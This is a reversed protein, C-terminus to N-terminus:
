AGLLDKRPDFAMEQSMKNYFDKQEDSVAPPLIVDLVVYFDGHALGKGKLRMKKGSQSHAPIKLKVKGHPTPVTIEEGLASEWPAVPVHCYIDSDVIKYQGNSVVDVELYLDGSEAGGVGAEGQGKLRIQQHNGIGKPIKVKLKKTKNVVQGHENLAQYGFHLEREVGALANNIDIQVKTHLDQGKMHFGQSRGHSSRGQQQKFFEGFIDEYNEFGHGSGGQQYFGGQQQGQNANSFGGQQAQQWHEGYQDYLKRKEADKLVDYADQVQKFKEEANSETSVDPHYKKALRRYAKKIDADTAEKKVGLTQYYNEAMSSGGYDNM